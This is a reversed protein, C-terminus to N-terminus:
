RMQLASARWNEFDPLSQPSQFKWTERCRKWYARIQDMRPDRMADYGLVHRWGEAIAAEFLKEDKWEWFRLWLLEQEGPHQRAYAAAYELFGPCHEQLIAAVADPLVGINEVILRLWYSFARREIFETVTVALRDVTVNKREAEAQDRSKVGLAIEAERRHHAETM